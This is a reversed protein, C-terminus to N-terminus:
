SRAGCFGCRRALVARTGCQGCAEGEISVKVEIHEITGPLTETAEITAALQAEVARAFYAAHEPCKALWAAKEHAVQEPTLSALAELRPLPFNCVECPGKGRAWCRACRVAIM